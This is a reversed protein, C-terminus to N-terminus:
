IKEGVVVVFGGEGYGEKFGQVDSIDSLSFGFLTQRVSRVKFGVVDFLRIVEQASFFKAMRYFVSAEKKSLYMQGIRSDKDVIAVVIRGHEELVRHAEKLARDPEKIFCIAVAMLVSGVSKNEFPLDEAFGFKIHMGRRIALKGMEFSPEVGCRVGLPIGFRGSGAGVELDGGDPLVSKLVFLETRYVVDNREFWGEYDEQFEGFVSFGDIRNRYFGLAEDVSNIRRFEVPEIDNVIFPREDVVGRSLVVNVGLGVLYDGDCHEVRKVNWRDSDLVVWEQDLSYDGRILKGNGDSCVAIRM